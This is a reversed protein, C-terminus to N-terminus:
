KDKKKDGGKGKPGGPQQPSEGLILVMSVVPPPPNKADAGKERVLKLMVIQNTKIDGLEAVYGGWQGSGARKPMESTKRKRMTGDVDAILPAQKWRVIVDSTLELSTDQGGGGGKKGGAQPIRISITKIAPLIEKKDGKKPEGLIPAKSVVGAIEGVTKYDVQKPEEAFLAPLFMAAFLALVGFALRRRM